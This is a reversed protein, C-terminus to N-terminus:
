NASVPVSTREMMRRAEGTAANLSHPFLAAFRQLDTPTATSSGTDLPLSADLLALRQDAATFPDAPAIVVVGELSRSVTAQDVQYELDSPQAAGGAFAPAIIGALAASLAAAALRTRTNNM